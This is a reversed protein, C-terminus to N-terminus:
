NRETQLNRWTRGTRISRIASISVGFETALKQNNRYGLRSLIECAQAETLKAVLGRRVNEVRAVKELHDPNGCRRNRCLHDLDTNIPVPGHVLEYSYRHAKVKKGNVRYVGYGFNIAGLWNWCGSVPCVSYWETFPKPRPAM